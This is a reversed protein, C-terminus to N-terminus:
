LSRLRETVEFFVSLPTAPVNSLTKCWVVLYFAVIKDTFLSWSNSCSCSRLSNNSVRLSLKVTLGVCDQKSVMLKILLSLFGKSKTSSLSLLQCIQFVFHIYLLSIFAVSPPYYLHYKTSKIKELFHNIGAPITSWCHFNNIEEEKEQIIGAVQRKNGSASCGITILPQNVIWTTNTQIYIQNIRM